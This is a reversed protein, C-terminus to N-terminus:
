ECYIPGDLLFTQGAVTMMLGSPTNAVTAQINGPPAKLYPSPVSNAGGQELPVRIRPQTYYRGNVDVESQLRGDLVEVTVPASSGQPLPRSQPDFNECGSSNCAALVTALVCSISLGCTPGRLNLVTRVYIVM